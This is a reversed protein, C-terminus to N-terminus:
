LAPRSNVARSDSDKNIGESVESGDVRRNRRVAV